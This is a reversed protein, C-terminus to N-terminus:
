RVLVTTGIEAWSYLREVAAYPVNVCGHSGVAPYDMTGYVTRWSADHLGYGQYFPMWFTVYNDYWEDPFPSRMRFNMTKLYIAFQGVVTDYGRKGTTILVPKDFISIGNEYAYLRQAGIDVLILKRVDLPPVPIHAERELKQQLALREQHEREETRIKNERPLTLLPYLETNAIQTLQVSTMQGNAQATVEASKTKYQQLLGLEKEFGTRQSFFAILSEVETLTANVTNLVINKKATEVEQTVIAYRSKAEKLYTSASVATVTGAEIENEVSLVFTTAPQKSPYDLYVSSSVITKLKSVTDKLIVMVDADVTNNLTEVDHLLAAVEPISLEGTSLALEARQVTSSTTAQSPYHLDKTANIREKLQQVEERLLAKESTVAADVKSNMQENMSALNSRIRQINWLMLPMAPQSLEAKITDVTSMQGGTDYGNRELLAVKAETEAALTTTSRTLFFGYAVYALVILCSLGVCSVVVIFDQKHTGSEKEVYQTEKGGKTTISSEMHEYVPENLSSQM